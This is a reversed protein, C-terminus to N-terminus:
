EEKTITKGCCRCYTTSYLYENDENYSPAWDTDDIVHFGLFCLFKHLM